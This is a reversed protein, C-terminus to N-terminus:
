QSLIRESTRALERVHRGDQWNMIYTIRRVVIDRGFRSEDFSALPVSEIRWRFNGPLEGSIQRTSGKVLTDTQAILSSLHLEALTRARNRGTAGTTEAFIQLLAVIAVTAIALSVLTEVLTFGEIGGQDSCSRVRNSKIM